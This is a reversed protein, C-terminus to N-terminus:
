SRFFSTRTTKPTCKNKIYDMCLQIFNNRNVPSTCSIQVELNKPLLKNEMIKKCYTATLGKQCGYYEQLSKGVDEAAQRVSPNDCSSLWKEPFVAQRIAQGELAGGREFGIAVFLIALFFLIAYTNRKKQDDAM